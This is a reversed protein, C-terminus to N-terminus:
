IASKLTVVQRQVNPHVETGTTVYYFYFSLAPLKGAFKNHAERFKSVLSLLDQNYVGAFSSLEKSLDFLDEASARFKHITEESFGPARKAQVIHVSISIDGKFLSLDSDEHLLEGNIFTHLSDIGGDGTSGVIGEDIEDNSNDYDKLVQEAVFREFFDADTLEPATNRKREELVQALVIQDNTQM